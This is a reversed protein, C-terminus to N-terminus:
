AAARMSRPPASVQPLLRLGARRREDSVHAYIQTTSLDSHGMLEQIVRIDVGQEVLETGFSHRLSHPTLTPDTIGALQIANTIADTVSTSLIPGPRYPSPFWWDDPMTQALRKIAPHLPLWLDKGGKALTRIQDGQIDDGRVRAIQSVRLGQYYGLKIMVRTRKYVGSSLMAEIQDRTFPRPLSRPVRIPALRDTPNDDRLGDDHLFTYFAVMAAREVRLTSAKVGERALYARLDRTSAEVLPVGIFRGLPRLIHERNAVTKPSLKQSLQFQAFDALVDNNMAHDQWLRHARQSATPM